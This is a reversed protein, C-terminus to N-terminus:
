SEEWDIKINHKKFFEKIHYNDNDSWGEVNDKSFSFNWCGTLIPDTLMEIIVEKSLKDLAVMFSSSSSNSIYSTRIKL